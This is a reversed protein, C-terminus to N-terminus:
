PLGMSLTEKPGWLSAVTWGVFLNSQSLPHTPMPSGGKGARGRQQGSQAEGRGACILAADQYLMRSYVVQRQPRLWLDTVLLSFKLSCLACLTVM